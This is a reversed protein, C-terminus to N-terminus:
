QFVLEGSTVHADLTARGPGTIRFTRWIGDKNMGFPPADLSGALVFGACSGYNTTSSIHITMSGARLLAFIDGRVGGISMNGARMSVAVSSSAPVEIRARSGQPLGSIEVLVPNRDNSINVNAGRAEDTGPGNVTVNVLSASRGIIEVDGSAVNIEIGGVVPLRKSDATRESWYYYGFGVILFVIALSGVARKVHIRIPLMIKHITM